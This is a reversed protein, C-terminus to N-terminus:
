AVKGNFILFEDNLMTDVGQETFVFPLKRLEM